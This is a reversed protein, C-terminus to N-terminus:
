PLTQLRSKDDANDDGVQDFGVATVSQGLQPDADPQGGEQRQGGAGDQGPPGLGEGELSLLNEAAGQGENGDTQHGPHDEPHALVGALELALQFSGQGPGEGPVAGAPANDPDGDDGHPASPTSVAQEIQAVTRELM